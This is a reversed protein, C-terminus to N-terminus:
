QLKVTMIAGSSNPPLLNALPKGSGQLLEQAPEEVLAEAKSAIRCDRNFDRPHPM